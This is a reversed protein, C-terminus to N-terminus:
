AAEKDPIRITLEFPPTMQGLHFHEGFRQMLEWLPWRSWGDADEKPPKYVHSATLGDGYKQRFDNRLLRHGHQTLKVMVHHNINFDM